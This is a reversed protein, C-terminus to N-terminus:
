LLCVGGFFGLAKERQKCENECILLEQIIVSLQSVFRDM